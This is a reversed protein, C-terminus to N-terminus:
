KKGDTLLEQFIKPDRKEKDQGKMVPGKDRCMAKSYGNYFHVVSLAPETHLYSLLAHSHEGGGRSLSPGLFFDMSHNKFAGQRRVCEKLSFLYARLYPVFLRFM